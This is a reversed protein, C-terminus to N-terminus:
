ENAAWKLSEPDRTKPGVNRTQWNIPYKSFSLGGLLMRIYSASLFLGAVKQKLFKM